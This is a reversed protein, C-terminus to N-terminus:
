LLQDYTCEKPNKDDRFRVVTPHRLAGGTFERFRIEVVQLTKVLNIKSGLFVRGIPKLDDGQYLGLLASGKQPWFEMVVVEIHKYVVVKLWDRSRKGPRYISGKRKAMVGEWGAKSLAEFLKLGETYSPSFGILSQGFVLDELIKRRLELPKHCIDEGELSLLDFAMLVASQPNQKLSSFSPRGAHLCVLEGDIVARKLEIAELHPFFGSLSKGTRSILRKEQTYFLARYGDWKPEFIYALSDFPKPATEAFMPRYDM